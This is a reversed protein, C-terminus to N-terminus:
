DQVYTATPEVMGYHLSRSERIVDVRRQRAVNRITSALRLAELGDRATVLPPSGKLVCNVFHQLELFLPEFIPVYIREVVSEQRYKVGGHNQSVYEGFTRRHVSIAKNLLDGEVYAERATVEISRIKQETVRSATMSLLPGEKYGLHAVVHDLADSFVTLGYADISLLKQRVLDLALDIDHIMLDSIVDVDTNSGEYASLRRLNIALVTMGELVHKLENYAPNFREIHGVQVIMDSAEAAETLTEAQKLTETIPKEILLHVGRALCYMALDFHLPTPTALSVAEVDELLDDIREYSIVGYQEAVQSGVEPDADFVGVLKTHRMNSYVRCHRRGMAGTGIVGIHVAEM